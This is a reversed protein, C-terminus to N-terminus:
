SRKRRSGKKGALSAMELGKLSEEIEFIREKVTELQPATVAVKELQRVTEPLKGSERFLDRLKSVERELRSIREAHEPHGQDTLVKVSNLLTQSLSATRDLKRSLGELQGSDAKDKLAEELRRTRKELREGFDLAEKLQETTDQLEKFEDRQVVGERFTAMRELMEMLQQEVKEQFSEEEAQLNGMGVKLKRMSEFLSGLEDRGALGKIRASLRSLNEELRSFRKEDRGSRKELSASLSSSRKMENRLTKLETRLSELSSVAAELDELKTKLGQLSEVDKEVSKLSVALANLESKDALNQYDLLDAKKEEVNELDSKQKEIDRFLKYISFRIGSLTTRLSTLEDQRSELQKQLDLIQREVGQNKKLNKRIFDLRKDLNDQDPIPPEM